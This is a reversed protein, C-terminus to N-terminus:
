AVFALEQVPVFPLALSSRCVASPMQYSKSILACFAFYCKAKQKRKVPWMKGYEYFVMMQMKPKLTNYYYQPTSFGPIECPG